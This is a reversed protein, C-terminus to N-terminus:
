LKYLQYLRDIEAKVEALSGVVTMCQFHHNEGAKVNNARFVCNFKTVSVWTYFFRGYGVKAGNWNQPLQPSFIGMAMSSNANFHIVPFEQEGIFNGTPHSTGTVPDYFISQYLAGNMYGTLAEFTASSSNAPVTYTINELITYPSIISVETLLKNYTAPTCTLGKGVPWWYAMNTVTLIENNFKKQFVIPSTKKNTIDGGQTPNCAEGAGGYSVASQLLRGNDTSDILEFGHYKLSAVAGGRKSDTTLQLNANQLSVNATAFTPFLLAFFLKKM